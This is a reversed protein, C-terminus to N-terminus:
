AARWTLRGCTSLNTLVRTERRSRGAAAAAPPLKIKQAQDRWAPRTLASPRRLDSQDGLPHPRGNGDADGEPAGPYPRLLLHKTLDTSGGGLAGAESLTEGEDPAYAAIYVLAKVNGAGASANTVVCGGYSHGALVVPGPITAVFSRLYDGDAAVGRLPNAPAYCSYGLGTLSTITDAWGSADAFAGHVLVVTPKETSTM